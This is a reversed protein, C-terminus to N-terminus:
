FFPPFSMRLFLGFSLPKRPPGATLVRPRWAPACSRVRALPALVRCSERHVFLSLTGSLCPWVSLRCVDSRKLTGLQAAPPLLSLVPSYPRPCPPAPGVVTECQLCNRGGSDLQRRHRNVRARAMLYVTVETVLHDHTEGRQRGGRGVCKLLIDDGLASKSSCFM